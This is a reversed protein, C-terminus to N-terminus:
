ANRETWEGCYYSPPTTVQQPFRTCVIAPYTIGELPAATPTLERSWRCTACSETM